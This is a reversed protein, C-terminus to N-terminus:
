LFWKALTIFITDLPRFRLGSTLISSGPDTLHLHSSATPNRTGSLPMNQARHLPIARLLYSLLHLIRSLHLVDRFLRHPHQM